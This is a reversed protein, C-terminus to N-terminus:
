FPWWKTLWHWDGNTYPDGSNLFALMTFALVLFKKKM